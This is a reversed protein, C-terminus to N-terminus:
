PQYKWLDNLNGQAGTSDYGDGGYLWLTGSSDIWGSAGFRGGPINDGAVGLMGYVGIQGGSRGVSTNGGVWTWQGATGNAGPIYEWLDDLYGSTDNADYGDGSSLWFNGSADTWNTASFRGGPVNAAAPTGQLGYVGPAGQSGTPPASSGGMWTWQGTSSTYKWLDNLYAFNGNEDSGIGGFLWFNGSADAWTSGADRGGPVNAADPVGLTGYVGAQGNGQGPAINSGGMWTWEGTTPSYEWLDNLYALTGTVDTGNGGFLWFNGSADKWTMSGYRGGPINTPAAAGQTGYVGAPGGFPVGVSNSGGMWTWEGATGLTPDFKWLDNLQGTVGNADIGEGGFMWLVGSADVWSAVQERAGPVNTPVAIGLTGYNGPAGSAGFTTSPTEVTSGGMWTWEGTTGLTPDFKWLDNLLGFASGTSDQGNGGFLWAKGSADTWTLAQQRGGPMNAAAPTGLTGYVGTQGGFSGVLNNGSMWTWEGLCVINVNTVDATSTGTGNNVTCFRGVPQTLVSVNYAGGPAIPDVFTFAGNASVDLIDVDNIGAQDQLILGSSKLGTVTGGITFAGPAVATCTVNANAINATATGNPNAVTCAQGAPNTLVTISYPAGANPIAGPFVFAYSSVGSNVTLNNGGNDQLVLGTGTLGFVSGGVTYAQECAIAVSTVNATATGSPASVSCNLGAPQTVVAVSYAGGSTIPTAFTFSTANASLTLNDGGNDQLVLGAGTLGTIAGGITYTSPAPPTTTTTKKSSSCGIIAIPAVASLTFAVFRNWSRM